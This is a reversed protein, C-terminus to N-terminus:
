SLQIESEYGLETAFCILLLMLDLQQRPLKTLIVMIQLDSYIAMITSNADAATLQSSDRICM